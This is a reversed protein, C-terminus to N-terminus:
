FFGFPALTRIFHSLAPDHWAMRQNWTARNLAEYWNM